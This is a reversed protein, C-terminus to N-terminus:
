MWGGGPTRAQEDRIRRLDSDMKERGDPDAANREAEALKLHLGM